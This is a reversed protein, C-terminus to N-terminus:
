AAADQNLLRVDDNFDDLQDSSGWMIQNDWEECNDLKEDMKVSICHESIESITGRLGAKAIFADFRDVDRALEVRDGVKVRKGGALVVRTLVFTAAAGGGYTISAGPDLEAIREVEDLELRNAEVFDFIHTPKGDLDFAKSAFNLSLLREQLSLCFTIDYDELTTPDIAQADDARSEDDKMTAVELTGWNLRFFEEREGYTVWPTCANILHRSM